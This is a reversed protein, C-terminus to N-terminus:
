LFDTKYIWQFSQHSASVGISQGGSTFLQSMLFSGSAPFSQPCSSFPVVSSSITPHMVQTSEPLQHHISLGPTHPEHPQLSNSVVSRSFQSFQNENTEIVACQWQLYQINSYMKAVDLYWRSFAIAGWELVRAQFIGHISSGPLSCDMPGSFDSLVSRSWKWKESEHMPSPFSLGSWHEQRSFGM